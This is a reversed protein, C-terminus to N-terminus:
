AGRMMARAISAVLRWDPQEPSMLSPRVRVEVRRESNVELLGLGEPIEEPKVLGAPTVFAFRHAIAMAPDRKRPDAVESLFDSRSVKVELAWSTLYRDISIGREGVHGGTAVRLAFADVRRAGWAELALETAFIWYPEPFVSKMLIRLIESARFEPGPSVFDDGALDAIVATGLDSLRWYLDGETVEEIWGERVLVKVTSKTPQGLDRAVNYQNSGTWWASSSWSRYGIFLGLNEDLARLIRAQAPTPKIKIKPSM